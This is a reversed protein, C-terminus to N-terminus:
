AIKRCGKLIRINKIYDDRDVLRGNKFLKKNQALLTTTGDINRVVVTSDIGRNTRNEYIADVVNDFEM